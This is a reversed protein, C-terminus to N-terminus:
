REPTEHAGPKNWWNGPDAEVRPLLAELYQLAEAPPCPKGNGLFVDKLITLAVRPAVDAPIRVLNLADEIVYTPFSFVSDQGELRIVRIGEIDKLLSM